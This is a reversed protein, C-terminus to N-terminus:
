SPTTCITGESPGAKTSGNSLVCPKMVASAANFSPAAEAVAAMVKRSSSPSTTARSVSVRPGLVRVAKVSGSRKARVAPRRPAASNEPASM